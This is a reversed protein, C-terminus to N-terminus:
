KKPLKDKPHIEFNIVKNNVDTISFVMKHNFIDFQQSKLAVKLDENTFSITLINDDSISYNFLVFDINMEDEIYKIQGNTETETNFYIM